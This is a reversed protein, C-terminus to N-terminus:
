ASAGKAAALGALVALAALGAGGGGARGSPAARAWRSDFDDYFSQLAHTYDAEPAGYYGKVKLLHASASADGRDFGQELAQIYRGGLLKWYDIAGELLSGYSRYTPPEGPGVPLEHCDGGQGQWAPTCMINGVNHNWMAATRGTEIQVQAWAMGLREASPLRGLAVEHARSLTRALVDPAVPTRRAAILAM